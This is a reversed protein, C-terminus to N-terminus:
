NYGQQSQICSRLCREEEHRDTRHCVNASSHCCWDNCRRKVWGERWDPHEESNQTVGKPGTLYRKGALNRANSLMQPVRTECKRESASKELGFAKISPMRTPNPM